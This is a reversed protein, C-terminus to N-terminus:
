SAEEESSSPVPTCFRIVMKKYFTMFFQIEVSCLVPLLSQPSKRLGAELIWLETTLVSSAILINLHSLTQLVQTNLGSVGSVGLAPLPEEGEDGLVVENGAVNRFVAPIPLVLEVRLLLAECAATVEGDGEM